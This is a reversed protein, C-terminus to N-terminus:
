LGMESELFKGREKISFSALLQPHNRGMYEFLFAKISPKGAKRIEVLDVNPALINLLRDSTEDQRDKLKIMYQTASIFLNTYAKAKFEPDLAKENLVDTLGKTFDAVRNLRITSTSRGKSRFLKTLEDTPLLLSELVLQTAHKDERLHIERKDASSNILVQTMAAMATCIEDGFFPRKSATKLSLDFLPNILQNVRASRSEKSLDPNLQPLIQDRTIRSVIEHGSSDIFVAFRSELFEFAKAQTHNSPLIGNHVASYAMGLLAVVNGLSVGDDFQLVLKMKNEFFDKKAIRAILHCIADVQYSQDVGARLFGDVLKAPWLLSSIRRNVVELHEALLIAACAPFEGAGRQIFEGVIPLNDMNVLNQGSVKLLHQIEYVGEVDATPLKRNKVILALTQGVVPDCWRLEAEGLIAIDDCDLGLEDILEDKM